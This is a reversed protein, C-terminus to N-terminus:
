RQIEPRATSDGGLLYRSSDNGINHVVIICYAWSLLGNTEVKKFREPLPVTCRVFYLCDVYNQRERYINLLRDFKFLFFDLM